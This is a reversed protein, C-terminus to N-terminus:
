CMPTFCKCTQPALEPKSGSDHGVKILQLGNVILKNGAHAAPPTTVRGGACILTPSDTIHM